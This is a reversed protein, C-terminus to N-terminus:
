RRSRKILYGSPTVYIEQVVGPEVYVYASSGYVAEVFPLHPDFWYLAEWLRDAHPELPYVTPLRSRQQELNSFQGSLRTPKHYSRLGIATLWPHWKVIGGNISWQDGRLQVRKATAEGGGAPAPTYTLEFAGPSLRRTTVQAVLTEGSFAHFAHLVILLTGLVVGLSACAGAALLRRLKRVLGRGRLGSVGLWLSILWIIVTTVALFRV